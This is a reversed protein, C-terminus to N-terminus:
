RRPPKPAFFCAPRTRLLVVAVSYAGTVQHLADRVAREMDGSKQYARDVLHVMVETDTDSTFVFGQAILDAKLDQYNEIIGNHILAITGDGSYHPHANPTTPGGHTAWRTHAIAVGHKEWEGALLGELVALKGAAKIVSVDKEGAVAVGASDYGRYELRRLMDVVTRVAPRPGVYGTIGCM